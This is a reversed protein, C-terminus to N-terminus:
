PVFFLDSAIGDAFFLKSPHIYISGKEKILINLEIKAASSKIFYNFLEESFKSKLEELRIGWMTRLGTMVYENYSEWVSLQEQELPLVGQRISKIYKANNSINWSRNKQDFSHASPGIGLYPEGKWYATNNIAYSGDKAFNSIEYHEFGEEELISKLIFFQEQALNEDIPAVKKKRIQYELATKEEVTLAYASIHKPNYSLAKRINREWDEDTLGPIGYILDLTFLEFNKSILELSEEAELANHARNMLQLDADRFSQIGVSLRNISSKALEEVKEKTLDDPNAELTIEVETDLIFNSKILDILEEIEVTSLVSPTGGGFYISQLPIKLEQNRMLLERKMADLLEDKHKLSTSFHFDCYSCAQRCFPIHLYIGAM